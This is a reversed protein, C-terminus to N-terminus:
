PEQFLEEEFFKNECWVANPMVDFTLIGSLDGSTLTGSADTDIFFTLHYRHNTEIEELTTLKAWSVGPANPYLALPAELTELLAGSADHDRVEAIVNKGVYLTDDDLVFAFTVRQSESLIYNQCAPLFLLFFLALYKLHNKCFM